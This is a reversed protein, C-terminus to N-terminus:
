TAKNNRVQQAFALATTPHHLFLSGIQVGDAGAKEYDQIDQLSNIGGCGIIQISSPLYKRLNEITRFNIYKSATHSVGISSNLVNSKLEFLNNYIIGPFSNAVVLIINHQIIKEYLHSKIIEKIYFPDPPLKLQISKNFNIETLYTIINATNSTSETPSEIFPNNLTNHCSINLEIGKINAKDQLRDILRNWSYNTIENYTKIYFSPIININPCLDILNDLIPLLTHRGTNRLNVNNLTTNEINYREQSTYNPPSTGEQKNLTTTKTVIADFLDLKTKINKPLHTGFGDNGLTGAAVM